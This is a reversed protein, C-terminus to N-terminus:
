LVYPVTHPLRLRVTDRMARQERITPLLHQWAPEEPIEIGLLGRIPRTGRRWARGVALRVPRLRYTEAEDLAHEAEVVQAQARPRQSRNGARVHAIAWHLTARSVCLAAMARETESNPDYTASEAQLTFTLALWMSLREFGIEDALRSGSDTALPKIVGNFLKNMDRIQENMMAVRIADEGSLYTRKWADLNNRITQIRRGLRRDFAEPRRLLSGTAFRGSDAFTPKPGISVPWRTVSIGVPRKSRRGVRRM